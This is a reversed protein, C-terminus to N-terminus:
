IEVMIKIASNRFNVPFFKKERNETSM